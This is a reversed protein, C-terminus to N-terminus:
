NRAVEPRSWNAMAPSATNMASASSGPRRWPRRQWPGRRPDPRPLRDQTYNGFYLPLLEPHRDLGLGSWILKDFHRALYDTLFFATVDDEAHRRVRCQRLLLCLLAPRRDARDGEEELMADLLGGTGCDGYLVISRRTAGRPRASRRACPRFSGTPRTTGSPPCASCTSPRELPQARDPRRDRPGLCRLGLLLVQGQGPKFEFEDSPTLNVLTM